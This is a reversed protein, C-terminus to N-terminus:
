WGSTCMGRILSAEALRSLWPLTSASHIALNLNREYMHFKPPKCIAQLCVCVLYHLPSGSTDVLTFYIRSASTPVRSRWQYKRKRLLRAAASQNGVPFRWGNEYMLSRSGKAVNAGSTSVKGLSVSLRAAKGPHSQISIRYFPWWIHKCM